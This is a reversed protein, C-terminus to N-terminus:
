HAGALTLLAEHAARVVVDEDSGLAAAYESRTSAVPKGELQYARALLYHLRGDAPVARLGAAATSEAADLARRDLLDSALNAYGETRMPEAAIAAEEDRMAAQWSGEGDEIVARDILAEFGDPDLALAREIWTRAIERQNRGLYVGGLLAMATYSAPETALCRQLDAIADDARHLTIEDNARAILDGCRGHDLAVVRDFFGIAEAPRHIAQLVTAEMMLYGPDFRNREALDGTDSVFQTLDGMRGHLAVMAAAAAPSPMDAAYQVAADQLRGLAAYLAGLRMHVAANGPHVILVHRWADEARQRDPIRFYLDGLLRGADADDPHLAVFHQLDAAAGAPDDAMERARALDLTSPIPASAFAPGSAIALAGLIAIFVHPLRM